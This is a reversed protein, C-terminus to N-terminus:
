SKLGSLSALLKPIGSGSGLGFNLARKPGFGSIDSGTGARDLELEIVCLVPEKTKLIVRDKLITLKFCSVIM